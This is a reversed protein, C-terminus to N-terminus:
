MHELYSLILIPSNASHNIASSKYDLFPTRPLHREHTRIGCEGNMLGHHFHFVCRNTLGGQTIATPPEFGRPSLKKNFQYHVLQIM